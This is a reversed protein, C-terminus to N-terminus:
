PAGGGSCQDGDLLVLAGTAPDTQCVLGLGSDGPGELWCAVSKPGISTELAVMLYNTGPDACAEQYPANVEVQFDCTDYNGSTDTVEFSMTTIGVPFQDGPSLGQTQVVSDIGCNDFTGVVIEPSAGCTGPEWDVVLNPCDSVPVIYDAATVSGTCFEATDPDTIRIDVLEELDESTLVFSEWTSGTWREVVYHEFCGYPGGELLSEALTYFGVECNEDLPAYVMDACAPSAYPGPQEDITVDFSCVALNGDGDTSEFSNQTVGIHFEEGSPLGATQVLTDGPDVLVVYEVFESCEGSGLQVTIDEPCDISVAASTAPWSWLVAATVSVVFRLDRM